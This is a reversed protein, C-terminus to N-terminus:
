ATLGAAGRDAGALRKDYESGLPRWLVTQAALTECTPLGATTM